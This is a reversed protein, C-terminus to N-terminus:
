RKGALHYLIKWEELTLTGPRRQPDIGAKELLAGAEQPDLKLGIALSNHIQKRPASFGAHALGLFGEIDQLAIAPEQLTSFKVVASDVKPRPYFSAAPVRCVIEARCFLSMSLALFGMRGPKATVDQAVEEQMMIVMLSPRAETQTFYRLIPSTIYYPINAVVKYSPTEGLLGPLDLGLIDAQVVQLSGHHSLRNRLREALRADLEVAIVRGCLVALKETLVGHGPGVEVVTDGRSLCAAELIVDRVSMDTLFNQGLSKRAKLGGGRSRNNISKSTSEKRPL